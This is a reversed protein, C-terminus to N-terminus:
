ELAEKAVKFNDKSEKKEDKKTRGWSPPEKTNRVNYKSLGSFM